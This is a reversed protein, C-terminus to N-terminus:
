AINGTTYVAAAPIRGADGFATYGAAAASYTNRSTDKEPEHYQKVMGSLFIIGHGMPVDRPYFISM